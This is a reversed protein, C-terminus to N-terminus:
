HGELATAAADLGTIAPDNVRQDFTMGDGILGALCSCVAAIHSRTLQKGFSRLVAPIQDPGILMCGAETALAQAAEFDRLPDAQGLVSKVEEIGTALEEEDSAYMGETRPDAPHGTCHGWTATDGPGPTYISNAM